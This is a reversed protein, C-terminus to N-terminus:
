GKPALGKQQFREAKQYSVQTKLIRRSLDEPQAFTFLTFDVHHYLSSHPSNEDSKNSHKLSKTSFESKQLFTEWLKRASFVYIFDVSQYLSSHPSNQDTKNSDKLRKTSFKSKQQSREAKQYLVQIKLTLISVNEPQSFTFLTWERIFPHTLHTEM